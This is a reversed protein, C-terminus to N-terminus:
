PRRPASALFLRLFQREEDAMLTRESAPVDKWGHGGPYTTLRAPVGNASLTDFLKLSQAPAVVADATGQEIFIPATGPGVLFLPSAERFAAMDFPQMARGLLLEALDKTPGPDALDVPGFNDVACAVSVPQAPLLAAMDSPEIATKAALFVALHGGASEGYACLRGADLGLTGANARLWRVALQVDALQAPWLTAPQNKKVLRYDVTAAFLGDHALAKCLPLLDTKDGSVWGGGHILVVGAHPKRGGGAPLCATLTQEPLSGYAIDRKLSGDPASAAPSVALVLVALGSGVARRRARLRM